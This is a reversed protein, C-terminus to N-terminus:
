LRRKDSQISLQPSIAYHRKAEHEKTLQNAQEVTDHKACRITIKEEFQVQKRSVDIEKVNTLSSLGICGQVVKSKYICLHATTDNKYLAYIQVNKVNSNIHRIM